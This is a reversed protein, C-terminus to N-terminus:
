VVGTRRSSSAVALRRGMTRSASYGSARGPTRPSDADCEWLQGARLELLARLELTRRFPDAFSEGTSLSVAALMTTDVEAVLFPGDPLRTSDLQALRRLAVEDDVTDRRITVAAPDPSSHLGDTSVHM